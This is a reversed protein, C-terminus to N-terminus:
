IDKEQNDINRNNDRLKIKDSIAKVIDAKMKLFKDKSNQSVRDIASYWNQFRNKWMNTTQIEQIQQPQELQKSTSTSQTIDAGIHSDQILHIHIEIVQM